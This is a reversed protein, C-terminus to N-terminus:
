QYEIEYSLTDKQKGCYKEERNCNLNKNDFSLSQKRHYLFLYSYFDVVSQYVSSFFDRCLRLSKLHM